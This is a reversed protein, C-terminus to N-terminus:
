HNTWAADSMVTLQHEKQKNKRCVTGIENTKNTSLISLKTISIVHSQIFLNDSTDIDSLENFSYWM